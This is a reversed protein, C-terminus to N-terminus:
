RLGMCAIAVTRSLGFVEIPSYRVSLLREIMPESWGRQPMCRQSLLAKVDKACSRLEQVGQSVYSQSIFTKCLAALEESEIM